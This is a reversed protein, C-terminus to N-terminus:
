EAAMFIFFSMPNQQGGEQGTGTMAYAIEALM